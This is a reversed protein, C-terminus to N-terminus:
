KKQLRGCGRMSAGMYPNEIKDGKQLWSAKAMPCYVETYASTMKHNALYQILSESLRNFVARATALDKADAL